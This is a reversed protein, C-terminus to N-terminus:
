EGTHVRVVAVDEAPITLSYAAGGNASRTKLEGSGVDIAASKATGRWVVDAASPKKGHNAVVVVVSDEGQHSAAWSIDAGTVEVPSNAGLGLVMAKFFSLTNTYDGYGEMMYEPTSLYVNGKGFHNMLLVPNGAGDDAVVEATTRQVDQSCFWPEAFEQQTVGELPLKRVIKGSAFIRRGPVHGGVWDVYFSSMGITAGILDPDQVFDEHCRMQDVNIHLNGGGLVYSRLTNLVERTMAIDGMVVVAPYEGLKAASIDSSVIDFPGAPTSAFYGPYITKDKWCDKTRGYGPLLVDLYRSLMADSRETPLKGWVSEHEVWEGWLHGPTWGNNKDVLLAFPVIPRMKETHNKAYDWFSKLETGWAALKYGAEPKEPDKCSFLPEVCQSTFVRSGSVYSLYLCRRFSSASHGGGVVAYSAHWLKKDECPIQGSYWPSVWIGWDGGFQRAGGRLYALQLETTPLHELLEAIVLDAGVRFGSHHFTMCLNPWFKVGPAYGQYRKRLRTLEAEFHVRGGERDTFDYIDPIRSRYSPRLASQVLDADLEEAHLGVFLDGARKRIETITGDPFMEGNGDGGYEAGGPRVTTGLGRGQSIMFSMRNRVCADVAAFIDNTKDWPTNGDEPVNRKPIWIFNGVGLDHLIEINRAGHDHGGVLLPFDAALCSCCAAILVLAPLLPAKPPPKPLKSSLCRPPRRSM